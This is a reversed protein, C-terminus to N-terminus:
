RHRRRGARAPMDSIKLTSLNLFELLKRGGGEVHCLALEQRLAGNRVPAEAIAHHYVRGLRTPNHGLRPSRIDIGLGLKGAM